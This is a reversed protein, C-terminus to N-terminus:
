AAGAANSPELRRACRSARWRVREDLDHEAKWGLVEGIRTANGILQPPDGARRALEEPELDLGTSAIVKSVVEEEPIGHTRAQDAVQKEVLSLARKAADQGIVRPTERPHPAGPVRDSEVPPDTEAARPVEGRM